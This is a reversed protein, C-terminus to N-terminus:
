AAVSRSYGFRDFDRQYARYVQKALDDNYYDRWPEHRSANHRASIAARVNEDAGVHDLVRKFDQPFAEVKGVFNVNIGPM